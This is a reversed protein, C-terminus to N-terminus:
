PVIDDPNRQRWRKVGSALDDTAELPDSPVSSWFTNRKFLYQAKSGRLASSHVESPDFHGVELTKFWETTDAAVGHFSLCAVYSPVDREVGRNFDSKPLLIKGSLDADRFRLKYTAADYPKLVLQVSPKSFYVEGHFCDARKMGQRPQVFVMQVVLVAIPRSGSNIFTMVDPADFSIQDAVVRPFIPPVVVGLEDSHYILAFFATASSVILALWATPSGIWFKWDTTEKEPRELIWPQWDTEKNKEPRRFLNRFKFMRADM